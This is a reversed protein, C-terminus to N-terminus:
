DAVAFAGFVGLFALLLLLGALCLGLHIWAVIRGARVLSEGTLRGGSAAIDREASPAIVLAVVAPIVPLFLFSSIALVLVVIATGDTQPAPAYGYPLPVSGPPPPPGYGHPPPGYAYGEPPPPWGPQPPTTM